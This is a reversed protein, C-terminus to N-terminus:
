KEESMDILEDAAKELHANVEDLLRKYMATDEDDGDDKEYSSTVAILHRVSMSLYIVDEAIKEALMSGSEKSGDFLGSPDHMENGVLNPICELLIVSDRPIPYSIADIGQGAEITVFGKGERQARHKMVRERGAEDMVKMTAIYYKERCGSKVALEEALLSKGSGADGKVVTLM